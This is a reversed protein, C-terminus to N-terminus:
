PAPIETVSHSQQIPANDSWRSLMRNWRLGDMIKPTVLFTLCNGKVDSDLYLLLPADQGLVSHM